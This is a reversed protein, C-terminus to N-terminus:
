PAGGAARFAIIIRLVQSADFFPCPMKLTNPAEIRDRPRVDARVRSAGLTESLSLTESLCDTM